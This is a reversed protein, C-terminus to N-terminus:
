GVSSCVDCFLFHYTQGAHVGIGSNHNVLTGDYHRLADKSSMRSTENMRLLERSLQRQTAQEDRIYM